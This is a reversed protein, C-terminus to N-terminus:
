ETVEWNDTRFASAPLNENNYLNPLAANSFAFRVAIPDKVAKSSVVVTNDVIKAKASHFVRDEGAITFGTLENGKKKLGNEAYDFTIVIKNKKTQRMSNYIPGSPVIGDVNYTGHLAWLALRRGVDQKNVPHINELNGIDNTVAMGTHEVTKLTHLQADRVFAADNDQPNDYKYPAIQVFYFPFEKHWAKRWTHILLPFSKYYSPINQRNSEGQYWICGAIKFNLLPHIMANYALGPSSPWWDYQELKKSANLLDENREIAERQIWTEVPTGGWSTNILGIPIALNKHLERGFFYAVSSFKRMTEPSCVAWKGPTDDQPATSTHKPVTFFRINPYKATAIEEEANLLGMEPTWEMNSQGSCIWVEGVLINNLVIKEHGEITLTYPGGWKPTPLKVSWTGQYAKAVVKEDNWSGFVTVAEDTATTWGWVLVESQQQLVMHDNFISPLWLKAHGEVVGLLAICVLLLKKMM